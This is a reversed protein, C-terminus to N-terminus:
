ASADVDREDLLGLRRHPDEADGAAQASSGVVALQEPRRARQERGPDLQHLPVSERAHRGEVFVELSVGGSATRSNKAAISPASASSIAVGSYLEESGARKFFAISQAERGNGSFTSRLLGVATM